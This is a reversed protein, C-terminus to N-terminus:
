TTSNSPSDKQFSRYLYLGLAIIMGFMIIGFVNMNVINKKNTQM